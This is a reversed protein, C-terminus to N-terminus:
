KREGLRPGIARDLFVELLKIDHSAAEDVQVEDFPQGRWKNVEKKDDIGVLQYTGGTRKCTCVRDSERFTFEDRLGLEDILQKLPEWNLREAEPGSTAAYLVRARKISTIKILARVRKVTTKGGGRGVLLSVRRAPDLAADRQWPHCDALLTERVGAAWQEDLSM